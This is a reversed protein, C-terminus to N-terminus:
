EYNDAQDKTLRKREQAEFFRNLRLLYGGLGLMAVLSLAVSAAAELLGIGPTMHSNKSWYVCLTLCVLIIQTTIAVLTAMAVRKRMQRHKNVVCGWFLSLMFTLGVLGALCGLIAMFRCLTVWDHAPLFFCMNRDKYCKQWLGQSTVIGGSLWTTDMLSIVIAGVAGFQLPVSLLVPVLLNFENM